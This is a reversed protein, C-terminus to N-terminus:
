NRGANLRPVMVGLVAVAAVIHMAALTLKASMAIAEPLLLPSALSLVAVIVSIAIFWTSASRTRRSLGAALPAALLAPIVSLVVVMYGPLEQVTSDSFTTIQIPTSAAANYILFIIANIVAAIVGAALGLQWWPRNTTLNPMSQPATSSTMAERRLQADNLVLAV